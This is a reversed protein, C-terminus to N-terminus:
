VSERLFTVPYAFGGDPIYRAFDRLVYLPSDEEFFSVTRTILWESAGRAGKRSFFWV